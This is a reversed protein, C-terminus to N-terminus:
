SKKQLNLLVKELAIETDIVGRHGDHYLSILDTSLKSLENATFNSSFKKAKSYVFPALGAETATSARQACIISKIQWFITGIVSEVKMGSNIANRYISWARFADRNGFADSLAFINFDEKKANNEKLLDSVVVKEANKEFSKKLEANLTNELVIFINASENMSLSIDSLEEKASANESVRDLFVIYKNSFLGQGVLHEELGRRDWNGSEVKVFTADPKKTRLSDILKHAKTRSSNIDTGHFVYLM